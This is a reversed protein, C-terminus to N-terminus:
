IIPFNQLYSRIKLTLIIKKYETCVRNEDNRQKKWEQKECKTKFFFFIFTTFFYKQIQRRLLSLLKELITDCSNPFCSPTLSVHFVNRVPCRTCTISPIAEPLYNKGPQTDLFTLLAIIYDAFMFVRLDATRPQSLSGLLSAKLPVFSIRRCGKKVTMNSWRFNEKQKGRFFLDIQLLERLFVCVFFLFSISFM